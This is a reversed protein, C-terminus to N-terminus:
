AMQVALAWAKEKVDALPGSLLSEFRNDAAFEGRFKTEHDVFETVANFIAWWSGKISPLTNREGRKYLAAIRDTKEVWNTHARKDEEKPEPFLTRLYEAGQGMTLKSTALKRATDRFLTFGADFQSIYQQALELKENKGATHRISMSQSGNTDMALRVTNACVVRVSTPTLTIAGSGDHANTLLVYRLVDDGEAITDVSPMRALLAIRQGGRLAMASEYRLIGDQCLSDLFAFAEANQHVSYRKGVTGLVTRPEQRVSAFVGPVPDASNALFLPELEVRWDLHALKMATESDPADTGDPSFVTGLKHWAPKNAYMAEVIRTGNFEVTSIEHAM